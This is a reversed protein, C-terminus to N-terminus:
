PSSAAKAPSATEKDSRRYNRVEVGVLRQGMKILSFDRKVQRVSIGRYAAVVSVPSVASPPLHEVISLLKLYHPSLM